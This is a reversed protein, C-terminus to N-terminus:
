KFISAVAVLLNWAGDALLLLLSLLMLSGCTMELWHCLYQLWLSPAEQYNHEKMQMAFVGFICCLIGGGFLGLCLIRETLDNM